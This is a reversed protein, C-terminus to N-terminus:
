TKKKRLKNNSRVMSQMWRYPDRVVVIPLVLDPDDMNDPPFTNRYKYQIPLHKGWPVGPSIIINSSATSNSSYRNHDTNNKYRQQQQQQKQQQQQGNQRQRIQEELASGAATASVNTRPLNDVLAHALATTGSNYLGAVRVRPPQSVSSTGRSSTSTRNILMSRYTACTEMGVVIPKSGYLDTVQSWPALKACSEQLFQEVTTQTAKATAAAASSAVVSAAYLISLLEEKGHCAPNAQLLARLTTNQYFAHRRLSLIELITRNETISNNSSSSEDDNVDEQDNTTTTMTATTIRTENSLPRTELLSEVTERESLSSLFVHQQLQQKVTTWPSDDGSSYRRYYPQLLVVDSYTNLVVAVGLLLLWYFAM